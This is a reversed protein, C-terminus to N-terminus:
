GVAAMLASAVGDTFLFGEGMLRLRGGTTEVFGLAAQADIAREMAGVDGLRAAEGLLAGLDLGEALRVGMMIRERLARAPDPAEVDIVPPAGGNAEVGAMWARVNPVNKWRLGGADGCRLHGSASPGAALWSEGRWYALNHRSRAADGRAFNSVEYRELGASRLAEFTLRQMEAELEEDAPEFEGLQLRKTMATNPEYTLAYCSLHELGPDAARATELDRRWGELTQGPIAFILDLSRRAVGGQAFMALARGVSGPEHWRELTKLLSPDFSQAGVSVRNVGGAVLAAVLGPTATEPNCEVTFEGDGSRIPSLDFLDGLAALLREWHEVALLTPTGGGVFITELPAASGSWFRLEEILRDTFEGQRDHPDVVSYFDCYHCKHFCFPVHIYLSRAREADGRLLGAASQQQGSVTLAIREEM